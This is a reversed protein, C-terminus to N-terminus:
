KELLLARPIDFCAPVTEELQNVWMHLEEETDCRLIWRRFASNSGGVNTVARAAIKVTNNHVSGRRLANSEGDDIEDRSILTMQFRMKKSSDTSRGGNEFGAGYVSQSVESQNDDVDGDEGAGDMVATNFVTIYYETLDWPRANVKNKPDTRFAKRDTYYNVEGEENLTFYVREWQRRSGAVVGKAATTKCMAMYGEMVISKEGLLKRRLKAAAAAARRKEAILDKERSHSRVKGGTMKDFFTAFKSRQRLGGGHGSTTTSHHDGLLSEHLGNDDGHDHNGNSYHKDYYALNEEEEEDLHKSKKRLKKAEKELKDGKYNLILRDKMGKPVGTFQEGDDSDRDRIDNKDWYFRLRIRRCYYYWYRAGIIFVVTSGIASQLEMVVWFSLTTALAFFVMMAIFANIIQGQEKEMGDTARAMSGIPGHLALGPGVVQLLMTNVIVHVCCAICASSAIWCADQFYNVFYDANNENKQNQTFVGFTFGGILAAQTGFNLNLTLYYNIQLQRIQLLGLNTQQFLAEQSAQNM